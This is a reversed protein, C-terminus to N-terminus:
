RGPRRSPQMMMRMRIREVQQQFRHWYLTLQARQVPSLFEAYEAQEARTQEIRQEQLALLAEMLAELSDADAAIGPRLQRSLAAWIERERQQLQARQEFARRVVERFRDFQEDTLGAQSRYNTMFREVVQQELQQRRMMMGEQAGLAGAWLTAGVLMMLVRRM